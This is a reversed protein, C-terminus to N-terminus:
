TAAPKKVATSDKLKKMTTTDIVKNLSDTLKGPLAKQLSDSAAKVAPLAPSGPSAVPNKGTKQGGKKDITKKGTTKEPSKDKAVKKAPYNDVPHIIQEKSAPREKPKWIFGKLIKDDANFKAIPGYRHEPKALFTVNSVKNDKFRVRIRSSLSRHMETVKGTSDHAFYITESNGDVFMTSLKDDKFFGRMKKGAVQNFNLSDKKEINVIFGNPFLDMTHLKKNKMQLLITDGSLQSGQTWLIPHVYLRITSDSNSYFASDSKGQLDSKFIKVHHFASLIRIHATDSLEAKRTLYVSDITNVKKISDLRAQKLSDTKSLKKAPLANKDPKTQVAKKPRPPGFYNRHLFTTDPLM